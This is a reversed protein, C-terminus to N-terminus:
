RKVFYFVLATLLIVKGICSNTIVGVVGFVVDFAWYMYTVPLAAALSESTMRYRVLIELNSDILFIVFCDLKDVQTNIRNCCFTQAISVCRFSM